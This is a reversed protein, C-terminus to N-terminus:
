PVGLVDSLTFLPLDAAIDQAFDAEGREVVADVLAYARSRIREQLRAVAAPKFAKTLLGRLRTHEPPDMNIMMSRLATLVPPPADYIQTLGLSSSYVRPTRLVHEVDAHRLVAWYGPGAPWPGVRPEEVRALPAERRLRALLDYPVDELYTDPSFLAAATETTDFSTM